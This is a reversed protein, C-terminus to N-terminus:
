KKMERESRLRQLATHRKIFSSEVLSTFVILLVALFVSLIVIFQISNFALVLYQLFFVPNCFITGTGLGAITEIALFWSLGYISLNSFDGEMGTFADEISFRIASYVSANQFISLFYLWAPVSMIKVNVESFSITAFIYMQFIWIFGVWTYAIASLAFIAGTNETFTFVFFYILLFVIALPVSTIFYPYELSFMHSLVRGYTDEYLWRNYKAVYKRKETPNREIKKKIASREEISDDVVVVLTAIIFQLLIIGQLSNIAIGPFGYVQNFNAFVAGTGLGADTEIALFVSLGLISIRSFDGMMGFFAEEHLYRIMSYLVGNQLITSIYMFVGVTLVSINLRRYSITILIYLQYVWIVWFWAYTIFGVVLIAITSDTLCFLFSFIIFLVTWISLTGIAYPFELSLIYSFFLGEDTEYLWQNHPDKNEENKETLNRPEFFLPQTKFLNFIPVNSRRTPSLM